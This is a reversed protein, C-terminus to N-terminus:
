VSEVQIGFQEALSLTTKAANDFDFRDVFYAISSLQQESVYPALSKLLPKVNDPNYASYSNLLKILLPKIQDVDPSSAMEPPDIKKPQSLNQIAGCAKNLEKALQPLYDILKSEHQEIVATQMLDAITSVRFISLNGAVGKLNHCIRHCEDLKEHDLLEAITDATDKYDDRFRILTEAYIDPNLWKKLGQEVNIGELSPFTFDDERSVIEEKPDFIVGQPVIREIAKTLLKFDIPKPVVADLGADFFSQEEDKMVSATLAIIPTHKQLDSELRRIEQTAELGNMKPMHIDMLILDPSEAKYSEVAELGNRAVKVRHGVHELRIQALLINEELDEALLINLGKRIVKHITKPKEKHIQPTAAKQIPITFSFTSGHGVKSQVGISGGMLDVLQKSITTGLGTGGFRRSTSSDAQTFPKFIVDLKESSIGIGTDKIELVIEQETENQKARIFVSGQDTFKIANNTLNLLVQRIRFSDGIAYEPVESDISVGLSINKEQAIPKLTEVADTIMQVLNFSQNELVFRGSDLKSLDLIDNILGLLTKASKYAIMLHQKSHDPIELDERALGLFGLISNMPTRIEHSMNALFESKSRNALEAAEKAQFLQETRERVKVELEVRASELHNLSKKRETIDRIISIAESESCAIIRAEYDREENQIPLKYEMLQMKGSEFAKELMEINKRSLEPPLINEIKQGIFQGPPVLTEIEASPKCDLYIGDRHLHLILDPIAELTAKYRNESAKLKKISTGLKRNVSELATTKQRLSRGIHDITIFATSYRRNILYSQCFIFALLGLGAWYGTNIIERSYLIDNVTAWFLLIVGFFLIRAGELKKIMARLIIYVGLILVCVTWIQYYPVTQSFIIPPTFIVIASVLIGVVVITNFIWRSFVAEFAKHFFATLLPLAVFFSIIELRVINEFSLEPFLNLLVIEGVSMQRLCIALCSLSFFLSLRDDKRMFFLMFHLLFMIFFIGVAFFDLQLGQEKLKSIDEPNGIYISDWLGGIRYHFNSVHLVLDVVDSKAFFTVIQPRYEPTTQQHTPGPHGANAMRVGNIFLHFSASVTPMKLSVVKGKEPLLVRLAYTGFGQGSISRGQITENKWSKPVTFFITKNTPPQLINDPKVLEKWAFM